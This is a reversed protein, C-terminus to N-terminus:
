SALVSLGGLWAALWGLGLCGFVGNSSRRRRRIKLCPGRWRLLWGRKLTAGMEFGVIRPGLPTYVPFEVALMFGIKGWGAGALAGLYQTM